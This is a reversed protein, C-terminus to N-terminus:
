APNYGMEATQQSHSSASREKLWFHQTIALPWSYRLTEIKFLVTFSQKKMIKEFAELCEATWVWPKDKKLLENLHARLDHMNSIFIQHYYALWLFSLLSAINDPTPMDKIAIAREPDPRRGDKDIIHGLYKIKETFFDCKTEKLKFGYDKIKTFVKHVHEKHEIISKSKMLMDLYAVAFDFGSLLNDM